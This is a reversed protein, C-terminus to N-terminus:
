GPALFGLDLKKGSQQLLSVTGLVSLLALSSTTDLGHFKREEVVVGTTARYRARLVIPGRVQTTTVLGFRKTLRSSRAM